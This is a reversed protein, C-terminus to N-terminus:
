TGLPKLHLLNKWKMKMLGEESQCVASYLGQMVYRVWIEATRGNRPCPDRDSGCVAKRM